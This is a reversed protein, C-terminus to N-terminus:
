LSLIQKKKAAFEEQTIVGSDLLDKFKKLEDANSQPIERNVITTNKTSQRKKILETIISYLEDCNSIFLFRIAGSATTIAIGNFIKSLGIATISDVPLDVIKGFWTKGYVRKDTITLEMGAMAFRIFAFFAIDALLLVFGLGLDGFWGNFILRFEAYLPYVGILIALLILIKDINISSSKALIKEEM